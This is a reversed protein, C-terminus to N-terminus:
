FEYDVEVLRGIEKVQIYKRTTYEVYVRNELIENNETMIMFHRVKIDKSLKNMDFVVDIDDNTFYKIYKVYKNVEVLKSM